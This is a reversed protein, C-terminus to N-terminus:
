NKQHVKKNNKILKIWIYTNIHSIKVLIINIDMKSIEQWSKNWQVRLKKVGCFKEKM